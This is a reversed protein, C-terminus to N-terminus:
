ESLMLLARKRKSKEYWSHSIASELVRSKETVERGALFYGRELLRWLFPVGQTKDIQKQIENIAIQYRGTNLLVSYWVENFVDLQEDSAGIIKYNSIEFEPGLLKFAKEHNGQGFELLGEALQIGKKLSPNTKKSKMEKLLTEAETIKNTSSLAWLILIDMHWQIHWVCEKKTLPEVLKELRDGMSNAHGRICVRMLLGIANLYVQTRIAGSKELEGWIHLDYISLVKSISSYGDLYCIALHWWCHTLMFSSCSKWSSSNEEMFKVAEKFRCKYQLVHCFGHQSWIDNKNIELGKNAAEEAEVMKGLELLAFCHIGHIYDEKPNEELVQEVLDLCEKPRGMFFCLDHGRKLSALDKPFQRLLASHLFYASDDDRDEGVLRSIAHFVVKEYPTAYKLRSEATSLYARIKSLELQYSEYAALTNALVCSEDHTVAELIVSSKRGRSLFQIYYSNIAVICSDSSTRVSYGWKDLKVTNEEGREM